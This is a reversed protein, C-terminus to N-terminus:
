LMTIYINNNILVAKSLKLEIIVYNVNLRCFIRVFKEIKILIILFGGSWM